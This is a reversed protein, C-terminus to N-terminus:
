LGAIGVRADAPDAVAKVVGKAVQRRRHRGSVLQVIGARYCKGGEVLAKAWTKSVASRGM